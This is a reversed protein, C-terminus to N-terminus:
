TKKTYSLVGGRSFVADFENDPYPLDSVDGV